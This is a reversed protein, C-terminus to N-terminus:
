ASSSSFYRFMGQVISECIQNRWQATILLAEDEPNSLFGCEVIVSPVPACTLMFYAGKLETRPPVGQTQYLANLSNQLCSAFARGEENPEHFFVQAGRTTCSSFRNQHISLVFDPKTKEIVAKRAQMDKRKFGKATGGYLGEESKRTLTVEFGMEELKEQLTFAIQLNLDSEKVGTRIGTVGGDV